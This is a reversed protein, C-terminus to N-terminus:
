LREGKTPIKHNRVKPKEKGEFDYIPELIEFPYLGQQRLIRQRRVKDDETERAITSLQTSISNHFYQGGPGLHVPLGDAKCVRM